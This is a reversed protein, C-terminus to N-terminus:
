VEAVEDRAASRGRKRGGVRRGLATEIQERFRENGLPDNCALRRWIRAAGLCAHPVVVM